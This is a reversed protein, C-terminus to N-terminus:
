KQSSEIRDMRVAQARMEAKLEAVAVELPRITELMSAKVSDRTPMGVIFAANNQALTNLSNIETALWIVGGCIAVISGYDAVLRRLNIPKHDDDLM